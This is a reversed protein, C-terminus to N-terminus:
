IVTNKQPTTPICFTRGTANASLYNSSWIGTRDQGTRGYRTNVEAGKMPDTVLVQICSKSKSSCIRGFLKEEERCSSYVKEIM